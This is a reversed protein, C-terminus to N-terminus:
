FGKLESIERCVLFCNTKQLEVDTGLKTLNAM